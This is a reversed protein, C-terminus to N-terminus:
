ATTTATVTTGDDSVVTWARAPTSHDTITYPEVVPVTVTGSTEGNAETVSLGVTTPLVDRVITATVLAGPAPHAPSLTVSPASM